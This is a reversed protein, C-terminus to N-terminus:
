SEALVAKHLDLEYAKPSILYWSKNEELHKAPKIGVNLFFFFESFLKPIFNYVYNLMGNEQPRSM